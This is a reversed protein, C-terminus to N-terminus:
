NETNPGRRIHRQRRGGETQTKAEAKGTAQRMQKGGAAERLESETLEERKKESM